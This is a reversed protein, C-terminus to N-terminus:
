CYESSHNSLKMGQLKGRSVLSYKQSNGHERFIAEARAGDRDVIAEVLSHHQAHAHFLIEFARELGLQDFVVVSPGIFPMNNLRKITDILVESGCNITIISHFRANMEGYKDEDDLELYRKKFLSDGATLCRELDAIVEKSAGKDALYRAAMGEMLSRLEISQLAADADFHKVSFGRKGIPEIFGEEALIPLAARIPTRSVGTKDALLTETLRQGPLLDGALIMERIQNLLQFNAM